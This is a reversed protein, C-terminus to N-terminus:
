ALESENQKIADCIQMCPFTIADSLDTLLLAKHNKNFRFFAHIDLSKNQAFSYGM